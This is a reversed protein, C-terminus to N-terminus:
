DHKEKSYWLYRTRIHTLMEIYEKSAYDPYTWPLAHFQGHHYMLTTEAKIGLSLPVRHPSDKTSALIFAQSSLIGPDINAVRKANVALDKELSICAKKIIALREDSILNKFAVLRRYLPMGMEPAYYEPNPFEFFQSIFFIEGYRDILLQVVQDIKNKDKSLISAVLCVSSSM